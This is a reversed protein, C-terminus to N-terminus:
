LFVFIYLNAQALTILSVLKRPSLYEELLMDAEDMLIPEPNVRADRYETIIVGRALASAPRPGPDMLRPITIPDSIARVFYPNLAFCLQM